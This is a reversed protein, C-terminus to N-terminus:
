ARRWECFWHPSRRDYRRLEFADREILEFGFETFRMADLERLPWPPGEPLDEDNGRIRTYVLLTGGPAVLSAIAASTRELISPPLAQLTYCEHVLDFAGIWERPLDFLDAAHYDVSTEPFRKRVWDIAGQSLDFATTDYGAAAIAEANDGLGCAVDIARKGERANKELWQVLQAKPKLDAWPVSAPDGDAQEYVANFFAARDPKEEGHDADLAEIAERRRALFDDDESM